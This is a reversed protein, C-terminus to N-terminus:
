EGAKQQPPSERILFFSVEFSYTMKFSREGHCFLVLCWFPVKVALSISILSNHFTKRQYKQRSNKTECEAFLTKNSTLRMQRTVKFPRLSKHNQKGSPHNLNASNPCHHVYLM